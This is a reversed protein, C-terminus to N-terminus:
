IFQSVFNVKIRARMPKTKQSYAAMLLKSEYQPTHHLYCLANWKNKYDLNTFHTMKKPNSCVRLANSRYRIKRIQNKKSAKNDKSTTRQMEGHM